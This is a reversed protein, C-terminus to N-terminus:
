ACNDPLELHDESRPNLYPRDPDLGYHRVHQNVISEVALPETAGHVFANWLGEAGVRCRSMGFSEGNAPDEAAALGDALWKSFLPVPRGRMTAKRAHVDACVTAAVRMYREAIFLVMSDPRPYLERVSLVKLRYPVCYRQLGTTLDRLLTPAEDPEANWYFRVIALEELQDGLSDGFAFFFAPQMIASERQVFISVYAGIQPPKGVVSSWFEGGWVIRSKGQRTVTIAGSPDIRQIMWMPDWRGGIPNAASLAPSLDTFTRPETQSITTRGLYCREYLHHQLQWVVPPISGSAVPPPVGDPQQVLIGDFTYSEPSVIRARHAIENFGTETNM